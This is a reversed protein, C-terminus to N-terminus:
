PARAKKTPPLPEKNDEGHTVKNGEVATEKQDDTLTKREEPTLEAHKGSVQLHKYVRSKCEGLTWGWCKARRFAVESCQDAAPCDKCVWFVRGKTADVGDADGEEM